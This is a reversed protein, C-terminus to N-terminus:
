GEPEQCVMVACRWSYKITSPLKYVEWFFSSQFRETLYSELQKYSISMEGCQVSDPCPTLLLQVFLPDALLKSIPLFSMLYNFRLSESIRYKQSEESDADDTTESLQYWLAHETTPRSAISMLYPTSVYLSPMCSAIHTGSIVTGTAPNDMKPWSFNM